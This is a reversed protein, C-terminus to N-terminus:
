SAGEATAEYLNCGFGSVPLLECTYGFKQAGSMGHVDVRDALRECLGVGDPLKDPVQRWHKCEGCTSM